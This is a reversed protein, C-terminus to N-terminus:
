WRWLLSYLCFQWSSSILPQRPIQKPLRRNVNGLSFSVFKAVSIEGIEFGSLYDRDVAWRYSLHHGDAAASPRCFTIKFFKLGFRFESDLSRLLPYFFDLGFLVRHDTLAWLCKINTWDRRMGRSSSRRNLNLQASRSWRRRGVRRWTIGNYYNKKYTASSFYMFFDWILALRETWTAQKNTSCWRTMADSIPISNFQTQLSISFVVLSNRRISGCFLCLDDHSM